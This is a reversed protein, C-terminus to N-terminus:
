KNEDDTGLLLISLVNALENFIPAIKNVNDINSLNGEIYKIDNLIEELSEDVIKQLRESKEAEILNNDESIQTKLKSLKNRRKNTEIEKSILIKSIEAYKSINFASKLKNNFIDIDPNHQLILKACEFSDDKLAIM